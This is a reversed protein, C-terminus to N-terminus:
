RQGLWSQVWQSSSEVSWDVIESSIPHPETQFQHQIQTQLGRLAKTGIWLIGRNPVAACQIKSPEMPLSQIESLCLLCSSTLVEPHTSVFVGDMRQVWQLDEVFELTNQLATAKLSQLGGRQIVDFPSVFRLVGSHHEVLAVDLNTGTLSEVWPYGIPKNGEPCLLRPYVKSTTAAREKLIKEVYREVLQEKFMPYRQIEMQLNFLNCQRVETPLHIIIVGRQPNSVTVEREQLLQIVTIELWSQLDM